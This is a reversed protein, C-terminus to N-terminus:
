EVPVLKQIMGKGQSAVTNRPNTLVYLEGDADEGFAWLFAKLNTDGDKGIGIPELSWEKGASQRTLAYLIGLKPGLNRSWDGFVYKGALKPLAKGRYIRGGTVSRGQGEEPGFAGMNKYQGIPASFGSTKNGTYPKDLPEREKVPNFWENGEKLNWGYNGGKVILNIEEWRSQGVDAVFLENKGGQDFCLGWPNRIGSAWIEPRVGKKGVFPNDAPIGYQKGRSKKNVDIRLIKGLLTSMDQGNGRPGRAVIAHQIIKGKRKREPANIDNKHGGDGSGIYLMGDPGFAIRGGDHNFYPQDIKMLIRESKLDLKNGKVKFESVHSTHDWNAKASKQLPGSYYIYLKKNKKFNPHLAIGLLGREDFSQRQPGLIGSIDGFATLKGAKNVLSMKGTQEGLLMQNKNFPILVCPATLGDAIKKLGVKLEASASFALLLSAAVILRPLKM